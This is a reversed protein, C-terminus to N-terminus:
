KNFIYVWKILKGNWNEIDSLADIERKFSRYRAIAYHKCYGIGHISVYTKWEECPNEHKWTKKWEKEEKVLDLVNEHHRSSQTVKDGNSLSAKWGM